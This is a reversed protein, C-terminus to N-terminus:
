LLGLLKFFDSNYIWSVEEEIVECKLQLVENRSNVLNVNFNVETDDIDQNDIEEYGHEFMEEKKEELYGSNTDNGTLRNYIGAMKGFKKSYSKIQENKMMQILDKDKNPKVMRFHIVAYFEKLKKHLFLNNTKDEKYTFDDEVIKTNLKSSINNGEFLIEQQIERNFFQSLKYKNLVFIKNFMEKDWDDINKNMENIEQLPDRLDLLKQAKSGLDGLSKPAAINKVKSINKM